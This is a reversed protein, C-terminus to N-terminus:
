SAITVRQSHIEEFGATGPLIYSPRGLGDTTAHDRSWASVDSWLDGPRPMIM